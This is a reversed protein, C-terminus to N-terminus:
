KVRPIQFPVKVASVGGDSDGGFCGQGAGTDPSQDTRDAHECGGTLKLKLKLKLWKEIRKGDM